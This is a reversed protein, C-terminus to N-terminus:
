SALTVTEKREQELIGTAERREQDSESFLRALPTGSAIGSLDGPVVELRQEAPPEPSPAKLRLAGFCQPFACHKM